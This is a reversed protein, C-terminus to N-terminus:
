QRSSTPRAMTDNPRRPFGPLHPLRIGLSATPQTPCIGAPFHSRRAGRPHTNNNRRLLVPPVQHPRGGQSQNPVLQTGDKLPLGHPVYQVRLSSCMIVIDLLADLGQQSRSWNSSARLSASLSM